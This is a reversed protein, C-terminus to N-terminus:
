RAGATPDDVREQWLRPPEDSPLRSVPRAATPTAGSTSAGAAPPASEIQGLLARLRAAATPADDGRNNNFMVHVARAERALRRARAAIEALEDDSYRWGFREAVTRGRLYGDTNRGHLRMYALDACTVADLPPMITVHDGPPADVCVFTARRERFWALTDGLREEGVWKRNRLEIAVHHPALAYLLRDLEDLAFRDPDFAPTLQVLIAGLKGQEALPRVVDALREALRAELEPTLLVRGRANTKAIGRLDRPLSAPSAAHRSLVRHAKVDFVFGPPTEEAWRRVVARSPLAYFTSNVEVAAFREAYWRLRDRAPLDPPYWEAVFGPDAWSSTGVLITGQPSTDTAM